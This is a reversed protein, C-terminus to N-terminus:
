KQHINPAGFYARMSSILGAGDFEFVDIPRIKTLQGQHVLSVSFPFACAHDTVRIEGELVVVLNMATSAAYFERIAMRGVKPSSGVPDEVTGDEAYLGVIADLDAANLARVYAHVTDIMQQQLNGNM